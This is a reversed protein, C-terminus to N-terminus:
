RAVAHVRRPHSRDDARADSSDDGQRLLPAHQRVPAWAADTREEHWHHQGVHRRPLHRNDEARLAGVEAGNGSAGGACVGYPLRELHDPSALHVDRDRSPGFRGDARDGDRSEVRAHRQGLAVVARLLRAAREVCATVAEHHALAGADEHQFAFRGRGPSPNRWNRLHGPVSRRGVRVVDRLRVRPAGACRPCHLPRHVLCAYRSLGNAVHFACPM